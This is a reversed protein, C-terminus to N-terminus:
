FQFSVPFFLLWEHNQLLYRMIKKMKTTKEVENLMKATSLSFFSFM